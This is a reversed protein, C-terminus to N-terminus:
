FQQAGSAKICAQGKACACICNCFTITDLEVEVIASKFFFPGLHGWANPMQSSLFFLLGKLTKSQLDLVDLLCIM